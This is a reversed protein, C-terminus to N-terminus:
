NIILNRLKEIGYERIACVPIVEFPLFRNDFHTRIIDKRLIINQVCQETPKNYEDDWPIYNNDNGATTRSDIHNIAILFKQKKRPNLYPKLSQLLRQAPADIRDLTTVLVICDAVNVAHEYFRQYASNSSYEGIGPTDIVSTAEKGKPHHNLVTVTYMEKTCAILPDTKFQTGFLANILSTKGNGTRGLFCVKYDRLKKM